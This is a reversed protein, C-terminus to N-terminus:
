VHARGIQGSIQQPMMTCLLFELVLAPIAANGTSRQMSRRAMWVTTSRSSRLGGNWHPQAQTAALAVPLQSLVSHPTWYEVGVCASLQSTGAGGLHGASRCTGVTGAVMRPRGWWVAGHVLAFAHPGTATRM